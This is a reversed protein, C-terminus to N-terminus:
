RDSSANKITERAKGRLDTDVQGEELDTAAQVIVGRPSQSADAQEDHEHPLRPAPPRAGSSPTEPGESPTGPPTRRRRQRSLPFTRSPMTPKRHQEIERVRTARGAGVIVRDM